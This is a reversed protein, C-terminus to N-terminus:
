AFIKNIQNVIKDENKKGKKSRLEELHCEDCSTVLYDEDFPNGGRALIIDLDPDHHTLTGKKRIGISRCKRCMPERKRHSKSVKTWRLSSYFKKKWAPKKRDLKRFPNYNSKYLSEHLDCYGSKKLLASCGAHRCMKFASEPM